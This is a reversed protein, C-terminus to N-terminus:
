NIPSGLISLWLLLNERIELKMDINVIRGFTKNLIECIEDFSLEELAEFSDSTPCLCTRCVRDLPQDGTEIEIDM